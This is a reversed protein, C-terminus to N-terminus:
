PEQPPPYAQFRDRICMQLATTDALIWAQDVRPDLELRHSLARAEAKLRLTDTLGELVESPRCPRQNLSDTFSESKAQDLLGRIIAELRRAERDLVQRKYVDLHTYSVAWARCM